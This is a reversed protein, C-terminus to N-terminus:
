GCLEVETNPGLRVEHNIKIVGAHAMRYLALLRRQDPETSSFQIFDLFHLSPHRAFLEWAAGEEYDTNVDKYLVMLQVMDLWDLAKSEKLLISENSVVLFHMGKRSFFEELPIKMHDPFQGEPKIEVVYRKGKRTYFCDPTYRRSGVRLKFPQPVFREVDKDSELLAAHLFEQYSHFYSLSVSYKIFQQIYIDASKLFGISAFHQQPVLSGASVRLSSHEGNRFKNV